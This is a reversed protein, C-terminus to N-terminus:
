GHLATRLGPGHSSSAHVCNACVIARSARASPPTRSCRLPKASSVPTRSRWRSISGCPNRDLSSRRRAGSCHRGRATTWGISRGGDQRASADVRREALAPDPDGLEAGCRYAQELHFGVIEDLADPRTDLWRALREHLEARTAKPISGYAVDRVLVHQFSFADQGPVASREPRVLRRRVLDLLTRAVSEREQDPALEEVADRTFERGVVAAWELVARQPRDLRDLRSAILAEVTPPMAGERLDSEAAYTTLQEFFLPNGEAAALVADVAEEAVASRDPLADVLARADDPELPPLVVAAPAWAPRDELLEPRGLCVIVIPAGSSWEAVYDVLDLLTPEAWHVDDLVLVVPRNRALSELLRRVAWAVDSSPHSGQETTLVGALREAIVAADEEGALLIREGTQVDVAGILGALADRLPLYTAGEGYPVCRGTLTVADDDLSRLLEAALRTKGKGPEGAVVMLACKSQEVADDFAARLRALEDRRGVLPAWLRRAVTPAGEVVGLLRYVGTEPSVVEIAGAALRLATAGLLIEGGEAKTELRRAATVAGGTLGLAGDGVLMEGAEVGIRVRLDGRELADRIEGAARLARLADDEHTHVAGFVAVIEDGLLQQLEGGHREVVDAAAALQAAFATQAAEPDLNGPQDLQALLVAVTKRTPREPVARTSLAAVPLELAPDHALIMRELARLRAGPEIGLKEILAVRADQYVRLADTQRGARYLALLQLERLRERSPHRVVLAELEGVLQDHLGLELEAEIRDEVTALRLEELRAIEGEAFPEFVFEALAPGRWLALAERLATARESSQLRHAERLLREFRRVDIGDEEVLLVYGPPRTELVGPGLVKRLRSICNQVYAPATRPPQEGWLEDILTDSSVVENANLLLVALLARQKPGGLSLSGHASVAELPGLLRFDM